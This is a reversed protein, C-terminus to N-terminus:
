CGVEASRAVSIAHNRAMEAFEAVPLRCWDFFKSSHYLTYCVVGDEISSVVAREGFGNGLVDGVQPTYDALLPKIIQSDTM